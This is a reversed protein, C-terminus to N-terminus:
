FGELAAGVGAPPKELCGNRTLANEAGAGGNFRQKCPAATPSGGQPSVWGQRGLGPSALELESGWGLCPPASSANWHARRPTRQRCTSTQPASSSLCPRNQNQGKQQLGPPGFGRTLENGPGWPYLISAAANWQMCQQSHPIHWAEHPPSWLVSSSSGRAEVM